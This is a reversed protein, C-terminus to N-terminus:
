FSFSSYLIILLMEILLQRVCMSPLSVSTHVHQQQARIGAWLRMAASQLQVPMVPNSKCLHCLMISPVPQIGSEVRVSLVCDPLVAINDTPVPM